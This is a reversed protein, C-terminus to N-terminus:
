DDHSQGLIEGCELFAGRLFNDVSMRKKGAPQVEQLALIGSGCNVEITGNNFSYIRGPQASPYDFAEARFIKLVKGGLTTYAGPAPALARVLREIQDAPNRWDVCADASTIKDAYTVESQDQETAALEGACIPELFRTLMDAGLRALRDHLTQSDDTKTIDIEEQCFVPGSDLGSEVKMLSIGTKRDGAMIARQIPAAGRWRPLLSAHLNICGARPLALLAPPLIQGFAVVIGLDLPGFQRLKSIFEEQSRRINEPQLLPLGHEAALLKIPSAALKQGRGAPRDPQTVVVDVRSGPHKLLASLAPVAFAPTGFFAIRRLSPTVASNM